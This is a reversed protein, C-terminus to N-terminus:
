LITRNPQNLVETSAYTATILSTEKLGINLTVETPFYQGSAGDPPKFFTMKQQGGYDINVNEIVCLDSEFLVPFEQVGKQYLVIQFRCMDPYGFTKTTYSSSILQDYDGQTVTGAKAADARAQAEAAAQTASLGSAELASASATSAVTVDLQDVGVDVQAGVVPSSAIRFTALINRMVKAEEYSTPKMAFPLTFQRFNPGNYILQQFQNFLKRQLFEVNQKGSQGASAFAGGIGAVGGIAQKLLATSFGEGAAKITGIIGADLSTGPNGYINQAPSFPNSLGSQFSGGLKMYINPAGKTTKEGNANYFSFRAIPIVYDSHAYDTGFILDSQTPYSYDGQLIAFPPLQNAATAAGGAVAPTREFQFTIAM